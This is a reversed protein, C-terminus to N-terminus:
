SAICLVTYSFCVSFGVSPVVASEGQQAALSAELKVVREKLQATENRALQGEMRAQSLETNSAALETDRAALEARLQIVKPLRMVQAPSLLAADPSGVAKRRKHSSGAHTTAPPPAAAQENLRQQLNFTKNKLKACEEQLKQVKGKSVLGHKRADAAHMLLRLRLSENFSPNVCDEGFKPPHESKQLHELSVTIVDGDQITTEADVCRLSEFQTSVCAISAEWSEPSNKGDKWPLSIGVIAYTAFGRRAACELSGSHIKITENVHYSSSFDIRGNSDVYVAHSLYQCNPTQAIPGFYYWGEQGTELAERPTTRKGLRQRYARVSAAQHNANDASLELFM